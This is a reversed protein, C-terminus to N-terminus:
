LAALGQPRCTVPLGETPQHCQRAETRTVVTLVFWM